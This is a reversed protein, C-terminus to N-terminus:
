EFIRSLIKEFREVIIRTAAETDKAKVDIWHIYLAGGARDVDVSMTGPTLTISNALFTLATDSKLTTKVKVIGPSIPLRPHVVRYAVDINAKVVEWFFVPLYQFFFVAYRHPHKLLYPRQIFLDGTLYAVLAAVFVGVALHQGDPVWDLLAWVIYATLFLVIRKKM